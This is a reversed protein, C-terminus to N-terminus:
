KQKRVIKELCNLLRKLAAHRGLFIVTCAAPGIQLIMYLFQLRTLEIQRWSRYRQDRWWGWQSGRETYSACSLYLCDPCVRKFLDSCLITYTEVLSISCHPWNNQEMVISCYCLLHSRWNLHTIIDEGFYVPCMGERGRKWCCRSSGAWRTPWPTWPPREWWRSWNRWNAGITCECKSTIKLEVYYLM